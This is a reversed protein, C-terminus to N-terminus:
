VYVISVMGAPLGQIAMRVPVRTTTTVMLVHVLGVLTRSASTSKQYCLNSCNFAYINPIYLSITLMSSTMCIIPTNHIRFPTDFKHVCCEILERVTLLEPSYLNINDYKIIINNYSAPINDELDLDLHVYPINM